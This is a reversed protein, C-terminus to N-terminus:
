SSLYVFTAKIMLGVFIYPQLHLFFYGGYLFVFEQQIVRNKVQIRKNMIASSLPVRAGRPYIEEHKDQDGGSLKTQYV